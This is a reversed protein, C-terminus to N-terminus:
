ITRVSLRAACTSRSRTSIPQLDSLTAIGLSMHARLLCHL